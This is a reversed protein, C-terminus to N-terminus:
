PTYYKHNPPWLSIAPSVTLVLPTSTNLLVSVNDSIFNAVALDTKGDGNFDGLLPAQGHTEVDM